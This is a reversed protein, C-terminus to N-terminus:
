RIKPNEATRPSPYSHFQKYYTSLNMNLVQCLCVISHDFRLLHIADLRQKLM